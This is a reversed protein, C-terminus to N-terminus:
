LQSGRLRELHHELALAVSLLKADQGHRAMVMLGVPMSAADLGIPLTLACLDLYNAICTNRLCLLNERLYTDPAGPDELDALRPPTNAVTPAVLVDVAQLRQDVAAALDRLDALRAQYTEEPLGAADGIRSRVNPDMNDLWEPLETTLFRGAEPAVPGGQLFLAHAARVEPLDLHTLSAGAGTIEALAADVAEVVGPSCDDFFLTDCRGLQLDRLDPTALSALETNADLAAFGYAVDDVTRALLGVTDLTSSLPVVGATSWRGRSTKLGVNGTWAAPIRVSGATDTGLALRASGECLSVGAGSSSGGPARLETSDWPNIPVRHHPNTGIGGFAFEVTHTKGTIVAGQALAAQVVPGPQEFRAPLRRGTGAFTAYGPVGFLDKVSLPLGQLPGHDEGAGFSADAADAQALTQDAHVERYAGLLDAALAAEALSRATISGDRLQAALTRLPLPPSPSPSPPLPLPPKSV